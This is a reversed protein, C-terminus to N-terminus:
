EKGRPIVCQAEAADISARAASAVVVGLVAVLATAARTNM